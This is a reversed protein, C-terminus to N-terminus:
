GKKVKTKDAESKVKTGTGTGSKPQAQAPQKGAPKKLKDIAGKFTANEPDFELGKSLYFVGKDRDGKVNVYYNALSGAAEMGYPKFRVKDKESVTLLKEYEPIALGQAGTSDLRALSRAVNGFGIFSLRYHPM